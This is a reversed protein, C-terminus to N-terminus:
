KKKRKVLYHYFYHWNKMDPYFLTFNKDICLQQFISHSLTNKYKIVGEEDVVFVPENMVKCIKKIASQLGIRM